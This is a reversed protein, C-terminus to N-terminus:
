FAPKSADVDLDPTNQLLSPFSLIGFRCYFKDLACRLQSGAVASQRKTKKINFRKNKSGQFPIFFRHFISWFDVLFRGFFRGFFPTGWRVTAVLVPTGWRGFSPYGMPGQPVPDQSARLPTNLAMKSRRPRTKPPFLPWCPELKAGLQRGFRLCFGDQATRSDDPSGRPPTMYGIKHM